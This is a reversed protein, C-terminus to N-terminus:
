PRPDLGLNPALKLSFSREHDEFGAIGGMRQAAAMACTAIATKGASPPGSMEIIRKCAFGGDWKNSLAHNFPAYGTDLYTDVTSEDDNKGIAANLAKAIDDASAM